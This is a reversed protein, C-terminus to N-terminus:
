NKYLRVTVALVSIGAPLGSNEAWLGTIVVVQAFLRCGQQLRQDIIAGEQVAVFPHTKSGHMRKKQHVTEIQVHGSRDGELEHHLRQGFALESKRQKMVPDCLM